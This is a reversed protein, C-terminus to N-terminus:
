AKRSPAKGASQRPLANKIHNCEKFLGHESEAICCAYAGRMMSHPSPCVSEKCHGASRAESDPDHPVSLSAGDDSHGKHNTCHENGCFKDTDHSLLGTLLM